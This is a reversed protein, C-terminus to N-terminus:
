RTPLTGPPAYAFLLFLPKRGGNYRIYAVGVPIFPFDHAKFRKAKKNTTDMVIGGGVVFAYRTAPATIPM